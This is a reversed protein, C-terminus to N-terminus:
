SALEEYPIVYEQPSIVELVLGLNEQLFEV